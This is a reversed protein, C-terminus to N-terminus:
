DPTRLGHWTLHEAGPTRARALIMVHCRNASRIPAGTSTTFLLRDPQSALAKAHEALLRRIQEPLAVERMGADSKPPGIIVPQHPLEVLSQEIRVHSVVGSSGFRLHRVALAFTEGGRLGAFATVLAALGYPEPLHDALSLLVDVSVIQATRRSPTRRRRARTGPRIRVPHEVLYGDEVAATCVSSLATRAQEFQLAGSGRSTTTRTSTPSGADQWARLVAGPLRGTRPVTVGTARAWARAPHGERRLATGGTRARDHAAAQERATANAALEWALVMARTLRAVPVRGLEVGGVDPLVLRDLLRRYLAVTSPALQGAQEARRLWTAAYDTLLPSHAADDRRWSGGLISTRLQARAQEADIRTAFRGGDRRKGDPGHYRLRWRGDPLRTISGWEDRTTKPRRTRVM